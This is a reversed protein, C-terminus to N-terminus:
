QAHYHHCANHHVHSNQQYVKSILKAFIAIGQAFSHRRRSRHAESWDKQGLGSGKATQYRQSNVGWEPAPHSGHNHSTNNERGQKGENGCRDKIKPRFANDSPERPQPLSHHAITELYVSLLSLYHLAAVGVERAVEAETRNRAILMEPDPTNIGYFCAFRYPPATSAYYVAKAGAQLLKKTLVRIQDGRVISDDILLIIQGQVDPSIEVRFKDNALQIRSQGAGQFIRVSYNDKLVVSRVKKGLAEAVGYAAHEGSRPVYSVIDPEPLGQEKWEQGLQLGLRYRWYSFSFGHWVSDPRSFYFPEMLCFRPESPVVQILEVRGQVDVVLMSGPPLEKVEGFDDILASESCAALGNENQAYYAPRFGHKDRMVVVKRSPTVSALSFAANMSMLEKYVALENRHKEFIEHGLRKALVEADCSSAFPYGLAKLTEREKGCFPIDGNSVVFLSRGGHDFYHPQANRQNRESATAYRVHGLAIEGCIRPLVELKAIDEPRLREEPSGSDKWFRVPQSFDYGSAGVIGMADRGRNQLNPIRELIKPVMNDGGFSIFFIFGCV